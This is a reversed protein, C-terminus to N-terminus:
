ISFKKLVEHVNLVILDKQQLSDNVLCEYFTNNCIAFAPPYLISLM